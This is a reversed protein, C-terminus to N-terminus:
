ERRAVGLSYYNQGDASRFRSLVYFGYVVGVAEQLRASGEVTGAGEVSRTEGIARIETERELLIRALAQEDAAEVSAERNRRREAIGVGVDFGPIRPPRDV